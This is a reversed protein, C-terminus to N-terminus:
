DNPPSVLRAVKMGFHEEIVFEKTGSGVYPVQPMYVLHEDVIGASLLKKKLTLMDMHLEEM